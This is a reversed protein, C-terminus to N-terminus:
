ESVIDGVMLLFNADCSRGVCQLCGECCTFTVFLRRGV